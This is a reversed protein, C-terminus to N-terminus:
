ASMLSMQRIGDKVAAVADGSTTINWHHHVAQQQNTAVTALAKQPNAAISSASSGVNFTPAGGMRAAMAAISPGPADANILKLLSRWRSAQGHANSTVEEGITLMAPVSDSGRPAFPNGGSALYAAEIPGGAARYVSGGDAFRLIGSGLQASATARLNVTAGNWRNVFAQLKATAPSTNVDLVTVAPKFNNVDYLSELYTEVAGTLLGKNRLDDKVSALSDKYAQVGANVSGTQEAIAGAARQAATVQSQIAQQNAVASVTNGDVELGNKEFSATLANNASALGTQAQAVNLSGGNLITFANSLLGAADNQLQMAQTTIELQDATKQQAGTAALYAPLSMGYRDALATQMVLQGKTSITTTGLAEALINYDDVSKVIGGHTANIIDLLKQAAVAQKTHTVVAEAGAAFVGTGAKIEDKLTSVLRKRAADDTTVAGTLDTTAIKLKKALDFAGADQLAKAAQAQVNKGIVGNDQQVAATYDEQAGTAQDTSASVIAFATAVAALAAIIWGIPGTALKVAVGLLTISGTALAAAEAVGALMPAIFGWAKFAFLAAGAGGVIVAFAPGASSLFSILGGLASLSQLVVTGVPALAEVLNVSASALSGLTQAVQPLAGIAYDGFKQLGGDRTWKEFGAALQEVYVGATLFLPNLVRFANVTGQLVLNGVVGLQTSFLGIERNLEPMSDNITSIATAFGSLMAGSATQELESLNGKLIQLGASYTNGASTGAAMANKIGLIAFVGAAGMGTLAGAVGVAFGTLPAGMSILLSVVTAILAMHKVTTKNAENARVKAATSVDQAAAEAAATAAVKRQAAALANESLIVKLNAADLRKQAETNALTAAAVQYETRGRKSSVDDLRMQSLAARAYATDAASTAATLRRQAAEVAAMKAIATATDAKVHITPDTRGLERARAEAQDLKLNWDSSDLRLYGVISGQTTPTSPM